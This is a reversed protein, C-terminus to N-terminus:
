PTPCAEHDVGRVFITWECKLNDNNFHNGVLLHRSTSVIPPQALACFAVALM